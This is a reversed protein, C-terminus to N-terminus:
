LAAEVEAAPATDPTGTDPGGWSPTHPGALWAEPACTGPSDMEAAMCAERSAQRQAQDAQAEARETARADLADMRAQFEPRPPAMVPETETVEVQDLDAVLAEAAADPDEIGAGFEYAPGREVLEPASAAPDPVEASEGASATEAEARVSREPGKARAELEAEALEAAHRDAADAEWRAYVEARGEPVEASEGATATGAEARAAPRGATNARAELESRALEASRREAATDAQWLAYVEAQGELVTGRVDAADAYAQAEQAARHDGLAALEAARAQADAEALREAKLEPSVEPPATAKLREGAAATAELQGQTMAWIMRDETPIELAGVADAHWTLLEPHAQPAPGVVMNPDTIEAAQRYGAATGVRALWDAQLAPSGNVPYPGLTNLVWPEPREAQDRALGGGQTDIARALEIGLARAEPRIVEPVRQAWTVTAGREAEEVRAGKLRGHMVAAISRAGTFERATATDLVQDLDAGALTAAYVQRQFVPRQSEGEYRGYQAPSLRKKLREDIAAYVGPRTAATYMALLHGTDTTFAQAERMAETATRSSETRVLIDALVAEPQAQGLDPQGAGPSPGTVVHVTNAARGRSMGVYLSERTLSASAYVHATDVTRGQAVYVNAAYALEASGQLYELPV